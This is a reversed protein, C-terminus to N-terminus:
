AGGLNTGALEDVVEPHRYLDPVKHIQAWVYMGDLAYEELDTRADYDEIVVGYNRFIWPGGHIVKKWDGLCFMEFIFKNSGAERFKPMQAFGWVFKMTDFFSSSSLPRDTNVRAIPLWPVEEWFQQAQEKEFVVDELEEDLLEMNKLMEELDEEDKWGSRSSSGAEVAM